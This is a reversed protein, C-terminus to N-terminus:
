EGEELGETSLDKTSRKQYGEPTHTKATGIGTWETESTLEYRNSRQKGADDYRHSVKVMNREQLAKTAASLSRWTLRAKRELTKLSPYCSGQKNAHRALAVYALVENKGLTTDDIVADPIWTLERSRTVEVAESEKM